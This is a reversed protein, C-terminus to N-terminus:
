YYLTINTHKLQEFAFRKKCKTCWYNSEKKSELKSIKYKIKIDNIPKYVMAKFQEDVEKSECYPCLGIYDFRRFKENLYSMFEKLSKKGITEKLLTKTKYRKNKGFSGTITIDDEDHLVTRIKYYEYTEGCKLRVVSM